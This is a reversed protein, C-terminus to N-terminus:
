LTRIIQEVDEKITHQVGNEDIYVRTKNKVVKKKQVKEEQDIRLVEKYDKLAQKYLEKDFKQLTEEFISFLFM